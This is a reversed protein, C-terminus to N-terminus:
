DRETQLQCLITTSKRVETLLMPSIILSFSLRIDFFQFHNLLTENWVMELVTVKKGGVFSSSFARNANLSPLIM